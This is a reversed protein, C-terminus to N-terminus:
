LYAEQAAVSGTRAGALTKLLMFATDIHGLSRGLELLQREEAETMSDLPSDVDFVPLDTPHGSTTRNHAYRLLEALLTLTRKQEQSSALEVAQPILELAPGVQGLTLRSMLLNHCAAFSQNDMQWARAFEQEAQAVVSEQLSLLGMQLFVNADPRAIKRLAARAEATKGQRKRALALLYAVQPDSCGAQVAKELLAAAHGYRVDVPEAVPVEAVDDLTLVEVM